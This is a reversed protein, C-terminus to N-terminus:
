NWFWHRTDRPVSPLLLLSEEGDLVTSSAGIQFISQCRRQVTKSNEDGHLSVTKGAHSVSLIAWPFINWENGAQFSLDDTYCDVGTSLAIKKGGGSFSSAKEGGREGQEPQQKSGSGNQEWPEGRDWAEPLPSPLLGVRARELTGGFLPLLTGCGLFLASKSM